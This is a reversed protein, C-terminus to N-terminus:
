ATHDPGTGSSVGRMGPTYSLHIFQPPEDPYSAEAVGLYCGMNMAKCEEYSLVQCAMVDPSAEAIEQASQALFTPTAVNPPADM